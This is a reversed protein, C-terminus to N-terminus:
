TSCTCVYLVHFFYAILIIPDNKDNIKLLYSPAHSPLLYSYSFYIFYGQKLTHDPLGIKTMVYLQFSWFFILVM